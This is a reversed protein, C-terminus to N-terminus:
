RQTKQQAVSGVAVQVQVLGHDGALAMLCAGPSM